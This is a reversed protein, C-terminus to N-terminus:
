VAHLHFLRPLHGSDPGHCALSRSAAGPPLIFPAAFALLPFPTHTEVLWSLYRPANVVLAAFGFLQGLQGYGTRFPSGYIQGNLWLVVLGFPVVAV